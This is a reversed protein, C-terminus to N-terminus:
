SGCCILSCLAFVESIQQRKCLVNADLSGHRACTMKVLHANARELNKIACDMEGLTRRIEVACRKQCSYKM